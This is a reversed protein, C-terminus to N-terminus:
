EGGSKIEIQALGSCVERPPEKNYQPHPKRCVQVSYKGPPLDYKERVDLEYKFQMAPSLIRGGAGNVIGQLREKFTTAPLIPRPAVVVNNSDCVIIRNLNDPINLVVGLMREGVNRVIVSGIIPENTSFASKKFRVSLQYGGNEKGWHGEPDLAVPRNEPAAMAAKVEEYDVVFLNPAVERGLQPDVDFFFKANRGTVPTPLKDSHTEYIISTGSVFYGNPWESEKVTPQNLKATPSKCGCSGILLISVIVLLRAPTKM